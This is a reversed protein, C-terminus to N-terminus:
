DNRELTTIASQIMESVVEKSPAHLGAACPNYVHEMAFASAEESRPVWYVEDHAKLWFAFYVDEPIPLERNCPYPHRRTIALMVRVNRLSLGGNGITFQLSRNDITARMGPDPWPAGVYDYKL